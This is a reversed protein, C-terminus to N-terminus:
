YRKRHVRRKAVVVKRSRVYSQILPVFNIIERGTSVSTKDGTKAMPCASQHLQDYNISTYRRSSSSPAPVSRELLTGLLFSCNTVPVDIEGNFFFKVMRLVSKSLCIKM